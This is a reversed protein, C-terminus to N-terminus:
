GGQSEMKDVPWELEVGAERLVRQFSHLLTSDNRVEKPMKGHQICFAVLEGCVEGINWETPHLRYCGNTIHTTGINKCGALLNNVEKPLLAGLPLHYPLAEVDLYTRGTMSPHLDISYSGIGVTDRYQKGIRGEQVDPSVDMETITYQAKIRRSERIYPSKALGDDTEFVDPRLKLGPYGKSGKPTPAETQLWYLLSLSLQKAQYLHKKKERESVDFINGLFYDNQPWNMLTIDLAKMPTNYLRNNFMRRYEWLPFSNDQKFLAYTRKEKTVPHPAHFSLLKDPWIDPQFSRWFDYMAPKDIVHNEEERYEMALVYTFAQIDLPDPIELAHPESTQAQSEAGTVYDIDALPLLEGTESADIFYPATYTQGSPIITISEIADGKRRVSRVSTCYHITLQNTIIYPILWDRLVHVTVRPDHCISSVLANGPNFSNNNGEMIPMRNLYFQRVKWRYERYRKTSGFQEIWPHEDPPVGQATVQGGLWNTEEIMRVTLGKECAALAAACGGLGGGVIIVDKTYSSSM